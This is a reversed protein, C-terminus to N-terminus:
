RDVTRFYDSRLMSSSLRFTSMCVYMLMCSVLSRFCLSVHMMRAGFFVTLVGPVLRDLNRM